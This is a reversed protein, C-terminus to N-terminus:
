EVHTRIQCSCMPRGLTSHCFLVCPFQLLLVFLYKALACMLVIFPHALSDYCCLEDMQRCMHVQFTNNMRNRWYSQSAQLISTILIILANICINGKESDMAAHAMIFCSVIVLIYLLGGKCCAYVQKHVIAIEQIQISM